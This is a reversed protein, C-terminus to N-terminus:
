ATRQLSEGALGAARAAAADARPPIACSRYERSGHANYRALGCDSLERFRRRLTRHSLGSKIYAKDESLWTLFDEASAKIRDLLQEIYEAQASNGMRKLVAVEERADAVVTGLDLSETM